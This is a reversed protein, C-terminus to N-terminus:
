GEISTGVGSTIGVQGAALGTMKLEVYPSGFGKQRVPGRWTQGLPITLPGTKFSSKSTGSRKPFLVEGGPGAATAAAQIAATDDTIGAGVAGYDFVSVTLTGERVTGRGDKVLPDYTANLATETLRPPLVNGATSEDFAEDLETRVQDVHARDQGTQQ